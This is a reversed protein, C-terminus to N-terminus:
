FGSSEEKKETYKLWIEKVWRQMLLGDMWAKSQHAIIFEPSATLGKIVRMTKGLSLCLHFVCTLMLMCDNNAKFIIMPPLMKGAGTCALVVTIHWKQAGTSKICVEKAGRKELSRSPIMDFYLPTEDM